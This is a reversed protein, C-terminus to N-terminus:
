KKFGKDRYQQLLKRKFNEEAKRLKIIKKPSIIGKLNTIFKKRILYMEDEDNEMQTLLSLAEKDSMKELADDNMRDNFSRMKNHRLEFQKDDFVNYIPWFKIAEEATLSLENTIYGVKLAKIQEKKEDFRPQAYFHITILFLLITFLKKTKM